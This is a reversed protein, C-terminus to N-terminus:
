VHYNERLLNIKSPDYISLDCVKHKDVYKHYYFYYCLEGISETMLALKAAIPIEECHYKYVLLEGTFTFPCNNKYHGYYDHYLRFLINIERSWIPHDSNGTFIKLRNNNQIDNKMSIFSRYPNEPTLYVSIRNFIDECKNKVFDGLCDWSYRLSSEENSNKYAKAVHQIYIAELERQLEFFDERQKKM